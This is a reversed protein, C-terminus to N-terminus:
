PCCFLGCISLIPPCVQVRYKYAAAAAEREPSALSRFRENVAALTIVESRIVRSAASVGM